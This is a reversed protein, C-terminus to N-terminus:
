TFPCALLIATNRWLRQSFLIAFVTNEVAKQTILPPHVTKKMCPFKKTLFTRSDISTSANEHCISDNQLV